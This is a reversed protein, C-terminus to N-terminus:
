MAITVALWYSSLRILYSICAELLEYHKVGDTSWEILAVMSAGITLTISCKSAVSEKLWVILCMTM